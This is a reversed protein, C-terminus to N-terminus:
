FSLSNSVKDAYAQFLVGYMAARMMLDEDYASPLPPPKQEDKVKEKSDTRETKSPSPPAKGKDGKAISCFFISLKNATKKKRDIWYGKCGNKKHQVEQIKLSM